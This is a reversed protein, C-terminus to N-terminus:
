MYPFSGSGGQSVLLASQTVLGSFALMALRCHLIEKTKMTEDADFFLSAQFDGPARDPTLGSATYYLAPMTLVEVVGCALLLFWMPGEAVMADHAAYSTLGSTFGPFKAGLDVGIYGTIALMCIRGHKLEAERMWYLTSLPGQGGFGADDEMTPVFMSVGNFKLMSLGMPDFGVDGPMSGDLNEPKKLFPLSESMPVEMKVSPSRLSRVHNIAPAKFAGKHLSAPTNFGFTGVAGCVLLLCQAIHHMKNHSQNHTFAGM